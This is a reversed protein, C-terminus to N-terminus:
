KFLHLKSVHRGAYGASEKRIKPGIRINIYEAMNYANNKRLKELM